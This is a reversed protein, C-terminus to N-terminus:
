DALPDAELREDPIPRGSAVSRGAPAPTDTHAQKAVHPAPVTPLQGLMGPLGPRIPHLPQQGRGIPIRVQHAVQVGLDHLVHAVRRPAPRM